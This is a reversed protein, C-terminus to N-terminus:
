RAKGAKRAAIIRQGQREIDDWDEATMPTSPGSDLGEILLAEVRAEQEGRGSDRRELLRLAEDLVEAESANRGSAMRSRIFSQWKEPVNLNM